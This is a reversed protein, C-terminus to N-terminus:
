HGYKEFIKQSYKPKEYTSKGLYQLYIFLNILLKNM